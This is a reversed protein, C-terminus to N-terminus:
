KKKAYINIATIVSHGMSNALKDIGEIDIMNSVKIHRNTRISLKKGIIEGLSSYIVGLRNRTLKDNGIDNLLLWNDVNYKEVNVKYKELLKYLSSSLEIVKSGSSKKTKHNNMIYKISRVSKNLVIYNYEEKMGVEDEYIIKSDALENRSALDEYFSYIVLNRLDKLEKVNSISKEVRSELYKKIKSNEEESIWSSLEKESKKRTILREEMKINLKDIEKNYEKIVKLVEKENNDDKLCKLFSVCSSLKTKRTGVEEYKTELVKIIIASKKYIDSIDVSEILSLVKCINLMYTKLTEKSLDNYCERLKSDVIINM